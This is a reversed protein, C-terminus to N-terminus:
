RETCGATASSPVNGAVSGRRIWPANMVESLVSSTIFTSGNLARGITSRAALSGSRVNWCVNKGALKTCTVWDRSPGIM